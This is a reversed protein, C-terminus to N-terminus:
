NQEIHLVVRVKFVDLAQRQFENAVWAKLVMQNVIGLDQDNGQRVLVEDGSWECKVSAMTIVEQAAVLHNAHREGAGIGGEAEAEMHADPTWKKKGLGRERALNLLFASASKYDLYNTWVPAITSNDTTVLFFTDRSYKARLAEAFAVDVLGLSSMESAGREIAVPSTTSAVPTLSSMANTEDRTIRGLGLETTKPKKLHRPPSRGNTEDKEVVEVEANNGNHQEIRFYESGEVTERVDPVTSPIHRLATESQSLGPEEKPVKSNTMSEAKKKLLFVLTKKIDIHNEPYRIDDNRAVSDDMIYKMRNEGGWYESGHAQLFKDVCKERHFSSRSLDTWAWDTEVHARLQKIFVAHFQHKLDLLNTFDRDRRCAVIEDDGIVVKSKQPAHEIRLQVIRDAM